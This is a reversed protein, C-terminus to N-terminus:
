DIRVACPELVWAIGCPAKCDYVLGSLHLVLGKATPGLRRANLKATAGKATLRGHNGTLLPPVPGLFSLLTLIDPRLFLQRGDPFTIPPTAGKRSVAVVYRKGELGLAGTPDPNILIDWKRDGTKRTCLDREYLPHVEHIGGVVTPKNTNVLTTITHPTTMANVYAVHEKTVLDAISAYYGRGPAAYKEASVDRFILGGLNLGPTWQGSGAKVEMYAFQMNRSSSVWDGNELLTGGVSAIMLTSTTTAVVSSTKLDGSTWLLMQQMPHNWYNSNAGYFGDNLKDWEVGGVGGLWGWGSPYVPLSTTTMVGTRQDFEVIVNTEVGSYYGVVNGDPNLTLDSSPNPPITPYPARWLVSTVSHSMPDWRVFVKADPATGELGYSIISRNDIDQTVGWLNGWYPWPGSPSTQFVTLTGQPSVEAIGSTAPLVNGLGLHLGRHKGAVQGTAVVALALVFGCSWLFVTRRHRTKFM